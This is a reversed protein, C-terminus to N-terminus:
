IDFSSWAIDVYEEHHITLCVCVCVGLNTKPQFCASIHVCVSSQSIIIVIIFIDRHILISISNAEAGKRERGKAM